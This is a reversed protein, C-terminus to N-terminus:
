ESSIESISREIIDWCDIESNIETDIESILVLNIRLDVSLDIERLDIEPLSMSISRKFQYM